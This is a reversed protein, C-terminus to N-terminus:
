REWMYGCKLCHYLDIDPRDYSDLKLDDETYEEDDNIPYYSGNGAGWDNDIRLEFIRSSNCRPCREIDYDNIM